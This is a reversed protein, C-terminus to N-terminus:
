DVKIRVKGTLLLDMLGQKIRELRNKEKKELELKKDAALCIEAIRQQEGQSPLPIELKEVGEKSARQRGTTGIMSSIIKNRFKSFKLIYFLFLVNIGKSMLPFVETTALAVRNPINSPVIGQKGNELSPTIKALLLDGAECYTYSKVNGRERIEYKAFVESDPVLEMPIFAIKEFSSISKNGRIEAVNSLTAIQWEKPTKGIPTDKYETHGIGRTLLQQMLGKKLRGTKAIVKDALEIASDVVGLVEVIGRQESLKSPMPLRLKGLDDRLLGKITSGQALSKLKQSNNFLVWYLFDPDARNKDVIVGTLDQSIAIDIKNVAVKGIGVRTAVLLNEKPVINTASNELGQRTIYKQGKTVIMGNIHASTMWAINGNWYDKCTTSPTGGGVLDTAVDKVRKAEWDKPIEGAPTDQFDSERYFM